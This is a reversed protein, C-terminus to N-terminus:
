YPRTPESIHILSLYTYTAREVFSDFCPYWVKGFNPPITSLGIGLNYIYGSAFYFGGWDPDRHPVGHYYVTLSREEDVAPPTDFQVDLFQDDYTFSHLEGNEVVSDVVLEFSDRICMESGM